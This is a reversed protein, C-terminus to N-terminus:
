AEKFFQKINKNFMEKNKESPNSIISSTTMNSLVEYYADVIDMGVFNFESSLVPDANLLKNTVSKLETMLSKYDTKNMYGNLYGAEIVTAYCTIYNISLATNIPGKNIFHDHTLRVCNIFGSYLKIMNTRTGDPLVACDNNLSLLRKRFAKHAHAISLAFWLLVLLAIGTAIKDSVMLGAIYYVLSCALLMICATVILCFSLLGNVSTDRHKTTRDIMGLLSNLKNNFQQSFM